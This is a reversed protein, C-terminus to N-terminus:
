SREEIMEKTCTSAGGANGHGGRVSTGKNRSEVHCGQRAESGKKDTRRQPTRETKQKGRSPLEAKVIQCGKM